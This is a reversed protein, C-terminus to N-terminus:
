INSFILDLTERSYLEIRFSNVLISMLTNDNKRTHILLLGPSKEGSIKQCAIGSFIKQIKGM